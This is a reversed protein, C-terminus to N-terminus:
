QKEHEHEINVDWFDGRSQEARIPAVCARAYNAGIEVMRQADLHGLPIM